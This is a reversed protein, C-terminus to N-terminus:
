RQLHGQWRLEHLAYGDETEGIAYVARATSAIMQIGVPVELEDLVRGSMALIRVIRSRNQLEGKKATPQGRIVMLTDGRMAIARAFEMSTPDVRYGRSSGGLPMEIVKPAEGSGRFDAVIDGRANVLIRRDFWRFQVVAVSDSVRAVYRSRVIPNLGQFDDPLPIKKVPSGRADLLHLMEMVSNPVALVSAGGAMPALRDIPSQVSFEVVPVWQEDLVLVKSNGGDAIWLRCRADFQMGGFGRIEGPGGGAKAYQGAPRGTVDFRRIIAGSFDFFATYRSCGAFAAPNGVQDSLPISRVQVVRTPVQAPLIGATGACCFAAWIYFARRMEMLVDGCYGNEVRRHFAQYVNRLM